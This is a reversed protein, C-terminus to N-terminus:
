RNGVIANDIFGSRFGSEKDFVAEDEYHVYAGGENMRSTSTGRCRLLFDRTKRELPEGPSALASQAISPSTQIDPINELAKAQVPSTGTSQTQQSAGGQSQTRM